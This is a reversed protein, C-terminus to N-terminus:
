REGAHIRRLVNKLKMPHVGGLPRNKALLQPALVHHRKELPKSRGHNRDLGAARGMVPRPQQLKATPASRAQSLQEIYTAVHVSEIATINTVGKAELWDFFETAARAYARRTHPNRINAAFFELFRLSARDGAAAVIPPLPLRPRVILESM